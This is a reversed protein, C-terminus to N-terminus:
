QREGLFSTEDERTPSHHAVLKLHASAFSFSIIMKDAYHTTHLQSCTYHASSNSPLWSSVFALCACFSMKYKELVVNTSALGFM